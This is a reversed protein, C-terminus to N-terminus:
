ARLRAHVALDLVVDAAIASPRKGGTAIREPVRRLAEVQRRREPSDALLPRLAAALNAPTAAEQLLEPYVIEDAVLNALVISKVKLLFRLKAAVADVKYAVVAPTGALGLELTVTGSAALAADALRFAAFKDAETEILRVPTTWSRLAQEVHGRVSPMVPLLVEIGEPVMNALQGVAGGFPAMLRTVESVRSGPLVVLVRRQPDLKLRTRADQPDEARITALRESLSHGVYTAAPGDLRRLEEPEFPLLALVHDVYRKMRRARGPRWAWVSPCVYDIVPISPLRRRIRKAIPHTFEPSDIIVVADPRAAIADRATEKVRAVLRPLQKLINIPGMVAVESLPFLSVLGEEQMLDGGVGQFAVGEGLRSKIEAMLKAGLADGSHEGAVLYLRLPRVPADAAM